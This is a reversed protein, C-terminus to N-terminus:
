QSPLNMKLPMVPCLFRQYIYYANETDLNIETINTKFIIAFGSALQSTVIIKIFFGSREKNPSAIRANAHLKGEPAGSRCDVSWALVGKATPVCGLAAVDGGSELSGVPLITM